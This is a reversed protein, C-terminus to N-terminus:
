ALVAKAAALIAAGPGEPKAADYAVKARVWQDMTAVCAQPVGAGYTERWATAKAGDTYETLGAWQVHGEDDLFMSGAFRAYTAAKPKNWVIGVKKPNTTQSMLRVGRKPHVDLWYRIQCRLTHGYPYDPVVYATEASIHTGPLITTM